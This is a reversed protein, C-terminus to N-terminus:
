FLFYVFLFISDLHRALKVGRVGCVLAPSRRVQPFFGSFVREFWWFGSFVKVGSSGFWRIRWRFETFSCSQWTFMLVAFLLSTCLGCSLLRFGLILVKFGMYSM